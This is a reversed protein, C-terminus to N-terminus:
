IFKNKKLYDYNYKLADMPTTTYEEQEVFFHKMGSKSENKFMEAINVGGKGFETSQKKVLNMDKLHWLPFRGPYKNFYKLPDNGSAIVWGLDLEMKVLQPDTRELLIDYLVQGDVKEFESEHNHHGFVINVKKCDEAAKTFQDATRQYNEITAADSAMSSCILYPQGAEAAADVSRQWDNDIRVHGSILRMGLDQTIKKIEKPQLGYYNGKESKASEIEKYGLSALQQLTGAADELMEKRVTYLQLGVQRKPSKAAQSLQPLMISGVALTGSAKLFNRRTNM